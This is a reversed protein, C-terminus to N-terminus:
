LLKIDQTYLKKGMRVAIRYLGGCLGSLDLLVNEKREVQLQKLTEGQENSVTVEQGKEGQLDIYAHRLTPLISIRPDKM